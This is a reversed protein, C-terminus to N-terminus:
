FQVGFVSPRFRPKRAIKLAQQAAIGVVFVHHDIGVMTRPEDVCRGTRSFFPGCADASRASSQGGFDM